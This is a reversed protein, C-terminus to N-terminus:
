CLELVLSHYPQLVAHLVVLPGLPGLAVLALLVLPEFLVLVEVQNL